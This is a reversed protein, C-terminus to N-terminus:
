RALSYLRLTAAPSHVNLRSKAQGFKSHSHSTIVHFTAFCEACLCSVFILPVLFLCVVSSSTLLFFCAGTHLRKHNILHSAQSFRKECSDCAFPREGTHLRKHAILHGSITFSAPCQDCLFPREGTTTPYTSPPSCVFPSHFRHIFLLLFFM